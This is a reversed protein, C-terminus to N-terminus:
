LTDFETIHKFYVIFCYELDPALVVDTRGRGKTVKREREGEKERM